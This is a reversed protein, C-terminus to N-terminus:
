KRELRFLLGKKSGIWKADRDAQSFLQIEISKMPAGFYRLSAKLDKIKSTEEVENEGPVAIIMKTDPTKKFLAIIHDLYPNQLILKAREYSYYYGKELFGDQTYAILRSYKPLLDDLSEWGVPPEYTFHNEPVGNEIAPMKDNTVPIKKIAGSDACAIPTIPSFHDLLVNGCYAQKADAYYAELILYTYARTAQFTLVYNEWQEHSIFPTESLLERRDCDYLGAWIRLKVPANYNAINNTIRSVSVYADSKAAYFSLNYCQDPVLPTNLTQGIREWTWNDRTVMGLYTEGNFATKKIGFATHPLIDPPSEKAFGCNGWKSPVISINPADEFSPNKLSIAIPEPQQGCATSMCGILCLITSLQKM